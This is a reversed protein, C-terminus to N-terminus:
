FNNTTRILLCQLQSSFFECIHDYFRSPPAVQTLQWTLRKKWFKILRKFQLLTWLNIVLHELHSVFEQTLHWTPLASLYRWLVILKEYGLSQYHYTAYCCSIFISHSFKWNQCTAAFRGSMAKIENWFSSLFLEAEANRYAYIWYYFFCCQFNCKSFAIKSDDNSCFDSSRSFNHNSFSETLRTSSVYM